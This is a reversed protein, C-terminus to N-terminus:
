GTAATLPAQTNMDSAREAAAASARSRALAWCCSAATWPLSGASSAPSPANQHDVGDDGPEPEGAHGEAPVQGGGPQVAVGVAALGGGADGPGYGVLGDGHDGALDAGALRDRDAGRDSVEVGGGVGDDVEAVGCCAHPADEGVHDGGEASPGDVAGGGEGDLGPGDQGPFGCLAAPGRDQDDVLGVEEAM